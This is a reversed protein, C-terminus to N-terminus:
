SDAPNGSYLQFDSAVQFAVSVPGANAVADLLENEDGETINVGAKVPSVRNSTSPSANVGVATIPVM